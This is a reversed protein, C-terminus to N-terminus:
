NIRRDRAKRFLPQTWGCNNAEYRRKRRTAYSARVGFHSEVDLFQKMAPPKELLGIGTRTQASCIRIRTGPHFFNPGPHFFESGPHFFNSDPIFMGSGCCQNSWGKANYHQAPQVVPYRAQQGRILRHRDPQVGGGRDRRGQGGELQRGGLCDGPMGDGGGDAVDPLTSSYGTYNKRIPILGKFLNM